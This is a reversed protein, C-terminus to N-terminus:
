PMVNRRNKFWINIHESRDSGVRPTKKKKKLTLLRKMSELYPLMHHFCNHSNDTDDEKSMNLKPRLGWHLYNLAPSKPSSSSIWIAACHCSWDLMTCKKGVEVHLCIHNLATIPNVELEGIETSSYYCRPFCLCGAQSFEWATMREGTDVIVIINNNIETCLVAM